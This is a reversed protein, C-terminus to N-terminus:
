NTVIPQETSQNKNKLHNNIVVYLVIMVIGIIMCLLGSILVPKLISPLVVKIVPFEISFLGVIVSSLLRVILFLVGTVITPIGLYKLPKLLSWTLLSILLYTFILFLGIYLWVLNTNLFKLLEQIESPIEM